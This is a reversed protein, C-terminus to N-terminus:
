RKGGQQATRAVALDISTELDHVTADFEARHAAVLLRIATFDHQLQRIEAPDHRDLARRIVAVEAGLRQEAWRNDRVASWCTMCSTFSARTQGQEAIKREMDVRSMARCDRADLGCETLGDAETRWPLATRLIHEKPETSRAM